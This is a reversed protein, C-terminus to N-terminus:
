SASVGIRSRQNTTEELAKGQIFETTQGFKLTGTYQFGEESGGTRITHQGIEKVGFGVVAPLVGIVPGLFGEDNQFPQRLGAALGYCAREGGDRNM